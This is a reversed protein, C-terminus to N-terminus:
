EGYYALARENVSELVDLRGVGQLRTRLDTLMFEILGEAEQRQQEAEDRANIAFVLLTTLLIASAISAAILGLARHLQRQADRQVLADLPVGAIGAVIKLRGLRVGDGQRRFDAAIPELIIGDPGPATLAEPFADAPEGDILAALVPRDPHFSRFLAIEENVWRSARAAPSCLIVLCASHLLADAVEDRLSNSAPLEARDRFIPSLRRPIEGRATSRGAVSRPLRYSELWRHLKRAAREDAHSYSIFSRYRAPQQPPANGASAALNIQEQGMCGAGRRTPSAPAERCFRGARDGAATQPLRLALKLSFLRAITGETGNSAQLRGT